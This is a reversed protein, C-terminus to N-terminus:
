RRIIFFRSFAKKVIAACAVAFLAAVLQVAVASLAAGVLAAEMPPFATFGIFTARVARLAVLSAQSLAYVAVNIGLTGLWTHQTFIRTFLGVTVAVLVLMLAANVGFPLSSLIDMALGSAAAAIFAETLRFNTVLTVALILPLDVSSAPYPLAAVFSAQLIGIAVAVLVLPLLRRM